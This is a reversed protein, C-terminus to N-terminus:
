TRINKYFNSRLNVPVGTLHNEMQEPPMGTYQQFFSMKNPATNGMFMLSTDIKGFCSRKRRKGFKLFSFPDSNRKYHRVRRTHRTRRKHRRRRTHRRKKPSSLKLFDFPDNSNIRRRRGFGVKGSGRCGCTM